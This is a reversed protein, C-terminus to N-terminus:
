ATHLALLLVLLVLTFVGPEAEEVAVNLAAEGALLL